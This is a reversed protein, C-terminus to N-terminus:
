STRAAGWVLGRGEGWALFKWEMAFTEKSFFFFFFAKRFGRSACGHRGGSGTENVVPVLTALKSFICVVLRRNLWVYLHKRM